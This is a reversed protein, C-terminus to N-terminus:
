DEVLVRLIAVTAAAIISIIKSDYKPDDTLSFSNLKNMMEDTLARVEQKVEVNM